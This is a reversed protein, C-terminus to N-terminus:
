REGAQSAYSELADAQRGARYLALMLQARLRERLPHQHALAELESVLRDQHGLALDADIRDELTALTPKVRRIRSTLGTSATTAVAAVPWPPAPGGLALTWRETFTAPRSRSGAM